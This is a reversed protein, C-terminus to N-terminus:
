ARGAQIIARRKPFDLANPKVEKRTLNSYFLIQQALAARDGHRERLHEGVERYRASTLTLGKWEPRYERVYAQWLHTDVPVAETKDFAYLAICDALKPGVGPLTQLEQVVDPYSAGRLGQFWRDGGRGLIDRAVRPITKARYGFGM